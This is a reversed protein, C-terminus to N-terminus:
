KKKYFDATQRIGEAYNTTKFKFNRTFKSSDFLYDSDNQYLMEINEKIVPNFRALLKLMWKKVVVHKPRVGFSSAAEQIFQHGDLVQPHTPLHWVQNYASPTNGLMATAKGADPTYTFSHKNDLNLMWQASKGKKYNEFVMVNVFSLPTNPGYFDASRAILGTLSGSEVEDMLMQAIKARVMGKKSCPGIATDEKMWGEVRGYMYVNDFFVLRAGEQKCADLVNRMIQPWQEQWVKIDYKLGATLYVVESGRVAHMTQDFDNLDASVLEDTENVKEPQRSVLRIKQTYDPLNKALERAIVGKAGLITQM